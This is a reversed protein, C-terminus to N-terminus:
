LVQGVQKLTLSLGNELEFLLCTLSLRLHELLFFLESLPIDFPLSLEEVDILKFVSSLMPSGCLCLLGSPLERTGGIKCVISGRGLSKIHLGEILVVSQSLVLVVLCGPSLALDSTIVLLLNLSKLTGDFLQIKFENLLILLDLAELLPLNTVFIQGLIFDEFICDLLM